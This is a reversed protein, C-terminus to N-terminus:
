YVRVDLSASRQYQITFTGNENRAKSIFSVENDNLKLPIDVDLKFLKITYYPTTNAEMGGVAM